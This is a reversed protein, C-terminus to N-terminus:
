VARSGDAFDHLRQRLRNDKALEARQALMSDREGSLRQRRSEVDAVRRELETLEILGAQFLDVLRKREQDAQQLRRDLRDLQGALLDDDTVPLRTALATEGALLVAPRLLVNRVETFVFGDLENARIQREHCVRDRGLARVPDHKVCRYYRRFGRKNTIRVCSVGCGCRGCKVLGRLLWAGPEARRPSWKSNDRTVHQAAEFSADPVIAPVRIAVWESEPRWRRPQSKRGVLPGPLVQTRNYYLTGVYARDSLIRSITSHGWMRKGLPSPIGEDYLRLGIQRLPLGGAVYEGFIRRVIAAEPEFPELRAPTAPTRRIRRYGYPVKWAVAEGLRARYLRGRRNREVIKAREYEAIVGQVQTLLRAQPDDDLAPADTFLVRVGHRELEELVLVQYAYVRALRDPTLCLVADFQGMEAADRLRDLGPRDLRAGSYGDDVYTAVVDHAAASAQTRLVELQSGISGRAEQADSSVRAYLAVRM